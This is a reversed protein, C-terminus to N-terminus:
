NRILRADLWDAHDLEDGRDAFDVTLTLGEAGTVDVSVPRPVDGGRVIGSTYAERWQRERLVYVGFTVSGKKGASDDLAALSDFRRYKGDLRYTLRAASHMAIGKLYRKGGVALPEGLVNRDRRYPWGISLYPVHRYGPAALDSLYVFRGGLSQLLAVDKVSGGALEVGSTLTVSMDNDHAVVSDAYILSGDKLGLALRPPQPRAAPSGGSGERQGFMVAEVRSLPLKVAGVDTELSLSGGSLAVLKGTVRDENTLLVADSSSSGREELSPGPSPEGRVLEELSERERPHSRQAFVVGRVLERPLPVEDFTDTLVVVEDGLLKVAAGGAWAAATVLRGGDALVVITQGRPARPHGWRVLEDIALTFPSKAFFTLGDTDAARLEAEIAAGELPVLEAAGARVTVGLFYGCLVRLLFSLSVPLSPSLSVRLSVTDGQRTKEKDGPRAQSGGQRVM